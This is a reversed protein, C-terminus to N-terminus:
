IKGHFANEEKDQRVDRDQRHDHDNGVDKPEIPPQVRIPM